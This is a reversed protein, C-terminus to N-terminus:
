VGGIEDSQDTEDAKSKDPWTNNKSFNEFLSKLFYGMVVGIIETIAVKSLSEAIESRGFWALLYSCWVWAIGNGLCIWLVRKSTTIAFPKSDNKM